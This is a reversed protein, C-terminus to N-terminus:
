EYEITYTGVLVGGPKQVEYTPQKDDLSRYEAVIYGKVRCSHLFGDLTEIVRDENDLLACKDNTLTNVIRCGM